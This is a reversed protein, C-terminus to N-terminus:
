KGGWGTNGTGNTKVYLSTTNAGDTRLFLSGVNATVVAEPSGTGMSITTKLNGTKNTLQLSGFITTQLNTRNVTLLNDHPEATQPDIIRFLGPSGFFSEGTWNVGWVLCGLRSGASQNEIYMETLKPFPNIVAVAIKYSDSNQPISVKIANGDSALGQGDIITSANTGFSAVQNPSWQAASLFGATVSNSAQWWYSKMSVFPTAAADEWAAPNFAGPSNWPFATGLNQAVFDITPNAHAANTITPLGTEIVSTGNWWILGSSFSNTYHLHSRRYFTTNTAGDLYRFFFIANTNVVGAGMRRPSVISPFGKTGELLEKATAERPIREQAVLPLLLFCSVFITLFFRKM